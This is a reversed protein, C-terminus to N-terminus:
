LRAAAVADLVGQAATEFGFLALFRVSAALDASGVVVHSPSSLM